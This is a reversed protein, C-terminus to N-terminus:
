PTMAPQHAANEMKNALITYVTAWADKAAPTFAAGLGQELTWLLAQGVTDYDASSVGYAVHREGLRELTPAVEDLKDLHAVAISRAQMLKKGQEAIDSKFLRRTHPAIEFLRNYFLRAAQDSVPVFNDYPYLKRSKEEFM